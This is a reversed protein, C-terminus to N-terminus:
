FWSPNSCIPSIAAYAMRICFIINWYNFDISFIKFLNQEQASRSDRDFALYTALPLALVIAVYKVALALGLLFAFLTMHMSISKKVLSGVAITLVSLGFLISNPSLNDLLFFGAPFVFFVAYLAFTCILTQKLVLRSGIYILMGNTFLIVARPIYIIKETSLNESFFNLSAASLHNLPIGPHLFDMSHGNLITSIINAFYDPEADYAALGELSGILYYPYPYFIILLFILAILLTSMFILEALFSWIKKTNQM